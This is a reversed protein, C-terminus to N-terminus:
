GKKIYDENTPKGMKGPGGGGITGLEGCYDPSVFSILNGINLDGTGGVADYQVSFGSAVKRGDTRMRVFISNGSSTFM